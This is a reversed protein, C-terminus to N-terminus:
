FNHQISQVKGCQITLSQANKKSFLKSKTKSSPRTFVHVGPIYKNVWARCLETLINVNFDSLVQMDCDKHDKNNKPSQIIKNHNTIALPLDAFPASNPRYVNGIIKFRGKGVKVKAWISEYVGPIFSSEIELVEYEFKSDIFLGVWSM